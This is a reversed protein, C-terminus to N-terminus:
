AQDLPDSSLFFIDHGIDAEGRPPDEEPHLTCGDGITPAGVLVFGTPSRVSDASVRAAFSGGVPHDTGFGGMWKAFLRVAEDGLKSGLAREAVGRGGDGQLVARAEGPNEVEHASLIEKKELFALVRRLDM